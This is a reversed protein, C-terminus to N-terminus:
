DEVVVTWPLYYGAFGYIAAIAMYPLSSIVSVNFALNLAQAAFLYGMSIVAISVLFKLWLMPTMQKLDNKLVAVIHSASIPHEKEIM